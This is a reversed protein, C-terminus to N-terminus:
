VHEQGEEKSRKWSKIPFLATLTPTENAVEGCPLWLDIEIQNENFELYNKMVDILESKIHELIQPSREMRDQLIINDLRKKAIDGSGATPSKNLSFM